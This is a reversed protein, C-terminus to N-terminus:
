PGEIELRHGVPDWRLVAVSGANALAAAEPSSAAAMPVELRHLFYRLTAQAGFPEFGYPLGDYVYGATEPARGTYEGVSTMWRRIDGDTRLTDNTQQRLFYIDSALFALVCVAVLAPKVKEVLGAIAVALGAFPVYCYASLIRGPLFFLPAFGLGMMALGFWARRNRVAVAGFPLLYGLFPILFVRGAYFKSTKALARLTFHFSYAGSPAPTLLLSLAAFTLSAAVFPALLKWRRGGFWLEYCILVLPLMVALEKSQYALWFAAFSWVWRGRTWLVVSALCFTGCLLDFVYMPKWVADFLAAHLTFFAVSVSAAGPPSGLRRLLLWLMWANLLHFVHLAAVYRPFDLGFFKEALKFYLFGVPRFNDKHVPNLALRLYESIPAWRTWAMSNIEDDQFYGRYAGSNALLFAATLLAFLIWGTKKSV